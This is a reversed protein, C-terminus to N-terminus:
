ENPKFEIQFLPPVRGDVDRPLVATRDIAKLVADDYTPVGSSKLLRKGLITGDPAVRVEVSAVPNGAVADGFYINRKIQARIRGAYSSSPGSSRLATGTDTPGGTAGAQGLMRSLQAKRLAELRAAEAKDVKDAKLKDLKDREAKDRQAQDAALKMAKEKEVRAKEAAAQKLAADREAQQRRAEDDEAQKRKAEDRRAKEIAIQPDPLAPTQVAPPVPVPPAPVVPPPRPPEAQPAPPPEVARPAAAQPVASWLEAAAPSDDAIHWNASFAIAAILLAHAAVALALAPGTRQAPRPMFPDRKSAVSAM